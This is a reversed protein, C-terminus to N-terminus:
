FEEKKAENDKTYETLKKLVFPLEAIEEERYHPYQYLWRHYSHVNSKIHNQTEKDLDSFASEYAKFSAKQGQIIQSMLILTERMYTFLPQVRYVEQHEEKLKSLHEQMKHKDNLAMSALCLNQRKKVHWRPDKSINKNLLNEYIRYYDLVQEHHHLLREYDNLEKMSVRKSYKVLTYLYLFVFMLLLFPNPNFYIMLGITVVGIVLGVILVRRARNLELIM